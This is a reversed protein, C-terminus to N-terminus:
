PERRQRTPTSPPERRDALQDFLPSNLTAPSCSHLCHGGLTTFARLLGEATSGPGHGCPTRTHQCWSPEARETSRGQAPAHVQTMIGWVWTPCCSQLRGARQGPVTRVRTQLGTHAHVLEASRVAHHTHTHTHARPVHVAKTDHADAARSRGDPRRRTLRSRCMKLRMTCSTHCARTYAKTSSASQRLQNMPMVRKQSLTLTGAGCCASQLPSVPLTIALAINSHWNSFPLLRSCAINLACTCQRCM